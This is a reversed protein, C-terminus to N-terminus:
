RPLRPQRDWQYGEVRHRRGHMGVYMDDATPIVKRIYVVVSSYLKGRTWNWQLLWPM